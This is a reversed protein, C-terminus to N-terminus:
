VRDWPWVALSCAGAGSIAYLSTVDRAEVTISEGNQLPYGDSSTVASSTGLYIVDSPCIAKLIYLHSRAQGGPLALAAASTTVSARFPTRPRVGAIVASQM